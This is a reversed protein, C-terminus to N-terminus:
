KRDQATRASPNEADRAWSTPNNAIYFRVRELEEDSRIVRDYYNRQWGFHSEGGSRIQRTTVAKFARVVEGLSMAAGEPHGPLLVIGHIHNPMVIYADLGVGPFRQPLQQREADAFRGEDSLVVDGEAIEGLLCERGQVCITVFYAGARAYDYGQWRISRRHHVDPKYRM